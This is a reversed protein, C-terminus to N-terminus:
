GHYKEENKPQHAPCNTVAHNDGGFAVRPNGNKDLHLRTMRWRMCEPLALPPHKCSGMVLSPTEDWWDPEWRCTLCNKVESM